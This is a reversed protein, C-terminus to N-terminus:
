KWNESEHKALRWMLLGIIAVLIIETV